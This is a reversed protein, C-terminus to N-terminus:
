LLSSTNLLAHAADQRAHALLRDRTPEDLDYYAPPQDTFQGLDGELTVRATAYNDWFAGKQGLSRRAWLSASHADKATRESSLSVGTGTM